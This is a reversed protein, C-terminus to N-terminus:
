GKFLFKQENESDVPQNVSIELRNRRHLSSEIVPKLLFNRKNPKYKAHLLATPSVDRQETSEARNLIDKRVSVLTKHGEPSEDEHHIVFENKNYAAGNEKRQFEEMLM